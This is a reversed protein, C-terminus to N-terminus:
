PIQRFAKNFFKIHDLRHLKRIEEAIEYSETSIEYGYIEKFKDRLWFSMFGKNSGIDLLSTGGELLQSPILEVRKKTIDIPELTLPDFNQNGPYPQAKIRECIDM